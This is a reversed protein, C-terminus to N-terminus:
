NGVDAPSWADMYWSMFDSDYEVWYTRNFGHSPLPVSAPTRIGSWTVTGMTTTSENRLRIGVRQGNRAHAPANVTFPAGSSVRIVNVTPGLVDPTMSPSYPLLKRYNLGIPGTFEPVSRDASRLSCGLFQNPANSLNNGESLDTFSIRTICGSFINGCSSPDNITLTAQNCGSFQNATSGPNVVISGGAGGDTAGIIVSQSVNGLSIITGENYPSIITLGVSSGTPNWDIGTEFSRGSGTQVLPMIITNGHAAAATCLIGRIAPHYNWNPPCVANIISINHCFNGILAIGHGIDSTTISSARTGAAQIFTTPYNGPWHRFDKITGTNTDACIIGHGTMLSTIREIRWEQTEPTGVTNIQIGANRHASDACMLFDHLYWGNQGTMNFLAGTGVSLGCILQTLVDGAGGIDIPLINTTAGFGPQIDILYSGALFRVPAGGQLMQTIAHNLAAGMSSTGPSSNPGYRDVTGPPYAKDVVITQVGLVHAAAMEAPTDAYCPAVCTQAEARKVIATAGSATAAALLAKSIDRRRM